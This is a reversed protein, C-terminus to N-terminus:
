LVFISLFILVLLLSVDFSSLFVFRIVILHVLRTLINMTRVATRLDKGSIEQLGCREYAEQIVEAAELNFDTSGSVAM